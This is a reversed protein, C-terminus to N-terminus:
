QGVIYHAPAATTDVIVLLNDRFRTIIKWAYRLLLEFGDDNKKGQAIRQNSPCLLQKTGLAEKAAVQVGGKVSEQVNEVSEM